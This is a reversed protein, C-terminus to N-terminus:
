DSYDKLYILIAKNQGGVNIAKVISYTGMDAIIMKGDTPIDSISVDGPRAMAQAAIEVTNKGRKRTDGPAEEWVVVDFTEGEAWTTTLSGDTASKATARTYVTASYKNNGSFFSDLYSM